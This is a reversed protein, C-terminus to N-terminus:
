ALSRVVVDSMARVGRRFPGASRIRGDWAAEGVRSDMALTFVLSGPLAREIEAIVEGRHFAKRPVMNVVLLVSGDPEDTVLRSGVRILRSVGVPTAHGVVILTDFEDLLGPDVERIPGVDIVAVDCFPELSNLALQSDHRSVPAGTPGDARGAVVVLDDHRHLSSEIRSPEHLVNDVLTRINPHLPLGLRQAVSPWVPDLDVLGARVDRGVEYALALAVETIGVGESAGTVGIRVPAGGFSQVEAPPLRHALTSEIKQLFEEPTADSEIVDSIGCELLHRKADAGDDPDFVGIVESGRHKLGSVLTPSLFSCVDDIILVDIGDGARDPALVRDVM